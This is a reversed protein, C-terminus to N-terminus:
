SPRFTLPITNINRWSYSASGYVYYLCSINDELVRAFLLKYECVSPHFFLGCMEGEFYKGDIDLPNRIIASKRSIPNLVIYDVGRRQCKFLLLGGFSYMLQPHNETFSLGTINNVQLKMMRDDISFYEPSRFPSDSSALQGFIITPARKSQSEIFLASSTLTHWRKCVRRCRLIDYSPLRILVDIICDDPLDNVVDILCGDPLDNVVDILCGDPLDDVIDSFCGYGNEDRSVTCIERMLNCVLNPIWELFRLFM